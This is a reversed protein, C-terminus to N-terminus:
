RKQRFKQKEKMKKKHLNQMISIKPSKQMIRVFNLPNKCLKSKTKYNAFNSIIKEICKKVRTITKLEKVDFPM